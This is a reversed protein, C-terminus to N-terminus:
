IFSYGVVIKKFRTMLILIHNELKHPDNNVVLYSMAVNLDSNEMNEIYKEHQLLDNQIESISVQMDVNVGLKHMCQNVREFDENTLADLDVDGKEDKFLYTIGDKLMKTLFWFTDQANDLGNLTVGKVEYPANENFIIEIAKDVPVNHLTQNTQNIQNKSPEQM